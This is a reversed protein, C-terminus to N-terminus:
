RAEQARRVQADADMRSVGTIHIVAVGGLIFLRCGDEADDIQTISEAKIWHRGLEVYGRPAPPKM